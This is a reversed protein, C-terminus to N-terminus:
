NFYNYIADAYEGEGRSDWYSRNCEVWSPDIKKYLNSVWKPHFSLESIMQNKETHSRAGYMSILTFLFCIPYLIYLPYLRGGLIYCWFTNPLMPTAFDFNMRVGNPYTHPYPRKWSGPVDQQFDQAFISRLCQMVFIRRIVDHMGKANLGAIFCKLQDPTYNLENNWPFQTPHRTLWGWKKEYASINPLKVDIHTLLILGMRVSSDGGDLTSNVPYNDKDQYVM